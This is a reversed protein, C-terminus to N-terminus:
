IFLLPRAEFLADLNSRATIEGIRAEFRSTQGAPSALEDQDWDPKETTAPVQTVQFVSFTWNWPEKGHLAEQNQLEMRNNEQPTYSIAICIHLYEVCM